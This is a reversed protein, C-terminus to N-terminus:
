VSGRDTLKLLKFDKGQSAIRRNTWIIEVNQVHTTVREMEHRIDVIGNKYVTVHPNDLYTGEELPFYFVVRSAVGDRLIARKFLARFLSM